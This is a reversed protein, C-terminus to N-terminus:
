ATMTEVEYRPIFRDRTVLVLDEVQAQAVLMRDFPDRHHPPLRGALDAHGFTIPLRVFHSREIQTVLDDPADLKGTSRKISIEWVSAVSVFVENAPDNIAELARINLTPDDRAWWLLANTDLLLRM